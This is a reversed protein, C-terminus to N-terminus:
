EPNIQALKRPIYVLIYAAVSMTPGRAESLDSLDNDLDDLPFILYIM